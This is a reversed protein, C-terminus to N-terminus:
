LSANTSFLDPNELTAFDVLTLTLGLFTGARAPSPTPNWRLNSARSWANEQTQQSYPPTRMASPQAHSCSTVSQVREVRVHHRNRGRDRAM